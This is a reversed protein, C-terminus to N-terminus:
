ILQWLLHDRFDRLCTNIEEALSEKGRDVEPGERGCSWMFPILSAIKVKPMGNSTRPAEFKFGAPDNLRLPWFPIVDLLTADDVSESAITLVSMDCVYEDCDEVAVCIMAMDDEAIEDKTDSVGDVIVEAETCVLELITIEDEEEEVDVVLAAEWLFRTMTRAATNPLKPSKSTAPDINIETRQQPPFVGNLGRPADGISSSSISDQRCLPCSFLLREYGGCCTGAIRSTPSIDGPCLVSQVQAVVADDPDM